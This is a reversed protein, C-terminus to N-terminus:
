IAIFTSEPATRAAWQITTPPMTVQRTSTSTLADLEDLTALLCRSRDRDAVSARTTRLSIVGCLSDRVWPYALLMWTSATGWGAGACGVILYQTMRTQQYASDGDFDYATPAVAQFSLLALRM